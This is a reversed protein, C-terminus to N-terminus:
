SAAQRAAGCSSFLRILLVQFLRWLCGSGVGAAAYFVIAAGRMAGAYLLIAVFPALELLITFKGAMSPRKRRFRTMRMRVTGALLGAFGFVVAIAGLDVFEDWPGAFDLLNMRFSRSVADAAESLDVAALKDKWGAPHTGVPFSGFDERLLRQAALQNGQSRIRVRERGASDPMTEALVSKHSTGRRSEAPMQRVILDDFYKEGESCAWVGVSGERNRLRGADFCDVQWKAPEADGDRWVNARIRTRDGVNEVQVRFGYWTGAEPSVETDTEGKGEIEM